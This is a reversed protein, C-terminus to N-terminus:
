KGNLSKIYKISAFKNVKILKLKRINLDNIGGLAVIKCKTYKSINMFRYLGLSKKEDKKFIPSIFLYDVGQKEKERIERLNHASGLIEFNRRLNPKMIMKKNFSPLYVGDYGLTNALRINNALYIKYKKSHCFNKLTKLFKYDFKKEYNRFILSINKNIKTIHDRNFENIFYFIKYNIFHM